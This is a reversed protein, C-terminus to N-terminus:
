LDPYYYTFQEQFLEIRKNVDIKKMTNRLMIGLNFINRVKESAKLTEDNHQDGVWVLSIM